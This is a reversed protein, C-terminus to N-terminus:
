SDIWSRRLPQFKGGELTRRTIGRNSKELLTRNTKIQRGTYEIGTPVLWDNSAEPGAKIVRTMYVGPWYQISRKEPGRSGM